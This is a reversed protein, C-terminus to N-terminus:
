FYPSSQLRYLYFCILTKILVSDGNRGAWQGANTLEHHRWFANSNFCTVALPALKAGYRNISSKTFMGQAYRVIIKICMNAMEGM